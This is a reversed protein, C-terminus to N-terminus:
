AEPPAADSAATASERRQLYARLIAQETQGRGRIPAPYRLVLELGSEGNSVWVRPRVDPPQLGHKHGVREMNERAADLHEGCVSQAADLLMSEVHQWREDNRLKVTTTHLVYQDTFTENLVPTSLFLSNPLVVTRGTLKHITREPGVELLTTTLPGIDIVDGRVGNIEIRDGLKFTRASVRLFTGSLCLILEKTAIVLAAALAALSLAVTQLQEAWLVATSGLFILVAANRSQVLFRNRREPPLGSGEFTRVAISRGIVVLALIVATAAGKLAAPHEGLQALWNM